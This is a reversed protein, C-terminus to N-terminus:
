FGVLPRLTKFLTRLPNRCDALAQRGALAYAARGRRHADLRAVADAYEPTPARFESV